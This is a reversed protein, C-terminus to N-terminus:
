PRMEFRAIGRSIYQSFDFPAGNYEVQVGKVYGLLVRIPRAGEVEIRRGARALNYYLREGSADYMEVWADRAFRMVVTDIPGEPSQSSSIAARSSPTPQSNAATGAPAALNEASGSERSTVSAGNSAAQTERTATDTGRSTTDQARDANSRALAPATDGNVNAGAIRSVESGSATSAATAATQGETTAPSPSPSPSSDPATSVLDGSTVAANAAHSKQGSKAIARAETGRSEDEASGGQFSAAESTSAPGAQPIEREDPQNAQYWMAALVILLTFLFVSIGVVWLDSSRAQSQHAIDAILAPPGFGQRDFAEVMPEAPLDLLRAYSRLYGRVFTPAPLERYDETELMEITRRDLHLRASVEELSFGAKERASRLRNGPGNDMEIERDTLDESPVSM